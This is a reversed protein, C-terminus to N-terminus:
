RNLYQKRFHKPTEGTWRKFAKYFAAPTSFGLLYAIESFTLTTERVYSLALGQRTTDMITQYNTSERYLRRRLTWPTTGLLVAMDDIDPMKGVLHQSIKDAVKDQWTQNAILRASQTECITKLSLYSTECDDLLPTLLVEKNFIIGNFDSNFIVPCPFFAYYLASNSPEPYEIHVAKLFAEPQQSQSKWRTNFLCYWSALVSDVVFFNYNNYPAISYFSLRAEAFNFDSQGRINHSLLIEYDAFLSAMDAMNKAAMAAFGLVGYYQFGSNRGMELGLDPRKTLTLAEFGLRMYKPIAVRGNHASLQKISVHYKDLIPMLDFGLQDVTFAMQQIFNVSIDGLGTKIDSM